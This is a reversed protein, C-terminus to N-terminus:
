CKIFFPNQAPHRITPGVIIHRIPVRRGDAFFGFEIAKGCPAKFDFGDIYGYISFRFRISHEDAGLKVFDNRELRVSKLDSMTARTLVAGTFVKDQLTKHTVRVHWGNTDHWVAVGAAHPPPSSPTGASAAPVGAVFVLGVLLTAAALKMRM